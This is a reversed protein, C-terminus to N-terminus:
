VFALSIDDHFRLGRATPRIRRGEREVLGRLELKELTRGHLAQADLGSWSSLEDLDVGQHLRLGCFFREGLLTGRELRERSAEPLRGAELHELYRDATRANTTREGSGDPLRRFGSASVGLGLYPHGTWYLTNHVAERGPLAHNSIEYRWYGAEALAGLLADEIAIALEERPLVVEGAAVARAMPVKAELTLAYASIHDPGAAAARRVDEVTEEPTAGAAAYILDISVNEIGAGRARAVASASEEASHWRGLAELVRPQFSQTGFSVRNVGQERFAALRESESAGPNAELTIEADDLIRRRERVARIVRGLEAPEWLSPTGGGFYISTVPVEPWGQALRLDLEAIVADAYLRHPIVEAVQSAFDCYPCRALCFPFHVYVGLM